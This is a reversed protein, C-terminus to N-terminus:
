KRENPILDISLSYLKIANENEEQAKEEDGTYKPLIRISNLLLNTPEQKDDFYETFQFEETKTENPLIVFNSNAMYKATRTDNPLKLQIAGNYTEKDSILIFNNTKNRITIVYSTEDYTIYKKNIKIEMYEDEVEIDLNQSGCYGDLSIKLNGNEEKLVYKEETFSYGDTTGDTLIDDLLRVRYVYTNNLNSFDQINYIKKNPFMEDVHKKFKDISSYYRTKYEESLLNYAADYNKNNCNEVFDKILNSIPEKLKEPVKDTKDIVPSHPEYTTQPLIVKQRYKLYYNIMIIISWIILIIIIKRKHKRFFRSVKLRIDLWYNM